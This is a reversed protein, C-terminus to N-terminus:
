DVVAPLLVSPLSFGSSRLFKRLHAACHLCATLVLPECRSHGWTRQLPLTGHVGLDPTQSSREVSRLLMQLGMLFIWTSVDAAIDDLPLKSTEQLSVAM